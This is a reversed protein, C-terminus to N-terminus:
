STIWGPIGILWKQSMPFVRAMRRVADCTQWLFLFVLENFFIQSWNSNTSSNFVAAIEKKKYSMGQFPHHTRHTGTGVRVYWRLITAGDGRQLLSTGGASKVRRWRGDHHRHRNEFVWVIVTHNSRFVTCLRYKITVVTHKQVQCFCWRQSNEPQGRSCFRTQNASPMKGLPSTASVAFSDTVLRLPEWSNLSTVGSRVTLGCLTALHMRWNTLNEKVSYCQKRFWLVPKFVAKEETLHNNPM